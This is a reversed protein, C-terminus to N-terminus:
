PSLPPPPYGPLWTDTAFKDDSWWDRTHLQFDELYNLLINGKEDRIELRCLEIQSGQTNVKNVLQPLSGVLQTGARNAEELSSSSVQLTLFQLGDLSSVEMSKLSMGYLNLNDIVVKKTIDDAIKSPAIELIEPATPVSTDSEYFQEGKSNIFVTIFSQILYGKKAALVIERETLHYYITDDPTGTKGNSASQIVVKLRLPSEQLVTIEAVPINQQKYREQLYTVVDNQSDLSVPTNKTLVFFLAALGIVVIFVVVANKKM